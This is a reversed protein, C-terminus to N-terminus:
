QRKQIEINKREIIYEKESLLNLIGNEFPLHAVGVAIFAKKTKLISDIKYCMRKNRLIMISDTFMKKDGINLNQEQYQQFIDIYNEDYYIDIAEKLIDLNKDYDNQIGLSYSYYSEWEGTTELASFEIENKKAYNIFDNEPSYNNERFFNSRMRQRDLMILQTIKAPVVSDLYPQWEYLSYKSSDAIRMLKKYYDDELTNTIKHEDKTVYIPPIAINVENFQEPDVETCLIDSDGILNKLENRPFTIFTTDLIHVTGLIYSSINTEPNTIQWLVSNTYNEEKCSIVVLFLISLLTFQIKEKRIM